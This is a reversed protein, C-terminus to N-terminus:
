DFAKIEGVAIGYVRVMAVLLFSCFRRKLVVRQSIINASMWFTLKEMQRAREM